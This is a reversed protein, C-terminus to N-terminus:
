GDPSALMLIFHDQRVVGGHQEHSQLFWYTAEHGV